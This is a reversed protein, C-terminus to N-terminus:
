ARSDDHAVTTKSRGLLWRDLVAATAIGVTYAVLDTWLFGYGLVLGGLRYSRLEDLWPPHFLQSVEIGYAFLLSCVLVRMTGHGRLLLAILLFVLMAWLADGAYNVYWDFWGRGITRAPLGLAVVVVM